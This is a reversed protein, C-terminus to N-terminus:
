IYTVLPGGYLWYCVLLLGIAMPQSLNQFRNEVYILLQGVGRLFRGQEM